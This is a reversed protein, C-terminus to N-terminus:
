RLRKGNREKGSVERKARKGGHRPSRREDGDRGRKEDGRRRTEGEWSGVDCNRDM